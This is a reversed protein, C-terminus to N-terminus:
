GNKSRHKTDLEMRQISLELNGKTKGNYRYYYNLTEIKNLIDNFVYSYGKLTNYMIIKGTPTTKAITLKFKFGDLNNKGIIINDDNIYYNGVGLIKEIKGIRIKEKITM